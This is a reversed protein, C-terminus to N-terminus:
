ATFDGIPTRITTEYGFKQFNLQLEAEMSYLRYLNGGREKETKKKM